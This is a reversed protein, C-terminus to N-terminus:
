RLAKELEKIDESFNLKLQDLYDIFYAYFIGAVLGLGAAILINLLLDPFIPDEPVTARDVIVLNEIDRREQAAAEEIATKLNDISEQYRVVEMNLDEYASQIDPLSAILKDVRTIEKKISEIRKKVTEEEIYLM